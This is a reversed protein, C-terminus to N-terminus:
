KTPLTLHTYSVSWSRTFHAKLQKWRTSYDTDGDPLEWVAHVHDPLLVIATIRFPLDQRVSRIANRMSERGLSTTLIPRRQETVVTFFYTRGEHSRRYRSMTVESSEM